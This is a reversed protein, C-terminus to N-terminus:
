LILAAYINARNYVSPEEGIKNVTHFGTKVALAQLSIFSMPYPIWPNPKDMDYEVLILKGESKLKLKLQKLFSHKDKVFHLSNAMLVGHLSELVLADNVFDANILQLSVHKSVEIKNLAEKDTDIAFITSGPALSKSLANTFLGKGAGLDAWVQLRSNQQGSGKPFEVGNKILREAVALEM